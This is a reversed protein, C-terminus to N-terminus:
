NWLRVGGPVATILWDYYNCSLAYYKTQPVYENQGYLKLYSILNLKFNKANILLLLLSLKKASSPQM